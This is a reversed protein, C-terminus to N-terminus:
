IYLVFNLENHLNRTAEFRSRLIENQDTFSFYLSVHSFLMRDIMNSSITNNINYQRAIYVTLTDM